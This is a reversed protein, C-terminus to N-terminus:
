CMLTIRRRSRTSRLEVLRQPRSRSSLKPRARACWMDTAPTYALAAGRRVRLLEPALLVPLGLRAEDAFAGFADLVATCCGDVLRRASPLPLTLTPLHLLRRGAQACFAPAPDPHSSAAAM